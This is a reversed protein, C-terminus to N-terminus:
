GEYPKNCEVDIKGNTYNGNGSSGMNAIISDWQEETGAFYVKCSCAMDGFFNDPIYTISAPLYITSGFCYYYYVNGGRWQAEWLYNTLESQDFDFGDEFVVMGADMPGDHLYSRLMEVTSKNGIVFGGVTDAFRISGGDVHIVVKSNDGFIAGLSSPLNPNDTDIKSSRVYFDKLMLCDNFTNKGIDYTSGEGCDVSVLKRCNAFASKNIEYSSNNGFTVSTLRSCGAFAGKEIVLDGEEFQLTVMTSNSKAAQGYVKGVNIGDLSTKIVVNDHGEAIDWVVYETKKEAYTVGNDSDVYYSKISMYGYCLTFVSMILVATGFVAALVYGVVHDEIYEEMVGVGGFIYAVIVGVIAVLSVYFGIKLILLAVNNLLFHGVIQGILSLASLVILSILMGRYFDRGRNQARKRARAQRKAQQEAEHAARALAIKDANNM